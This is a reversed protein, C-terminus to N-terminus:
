GIGRPGPRDECRQSGGRDTAPAVAVVRFMPHRPAEREVAELPSDPTVDFHARVMSPFSTLTGKFVPTAEAPSVATALIPEERHGCTLTGRGGARLNRVMNMEGFLSQLWREGGWELITVLTTWPRGTSRSPVILLVNVGLKVGRRVLAAFIANRVRFFPTIRYTMAM